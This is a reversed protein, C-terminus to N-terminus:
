LHISHVSTLLLSSPSSQTSCTNISLLQYGWVRQIAALSGQEIIRMQETESADQAQQAQQAQQVEQAEQDESNTRLFILVPVHVM